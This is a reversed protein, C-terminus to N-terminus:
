RRKVAGWATITKGHPIVTKIAARYIGEVTAAYLHSQHSVLARVTLGGLGAPVFTESREDFMYVGHRYLGAFLRGRYVALSMISATAGNSYVPLTDFFYEWAPKAENRRALGHLAGVYLRDKLEAWDGVDGYGSHHFEWTQGSDPSRLIGFNEDDVWLYGDFETMSRVSGAILCCGHIWEDLVSRWTEGRDTSIYTGDFSMMAVITGDGTIFMQDISPYEDQVKEGNVTRRHFGNNIPKWTNGRDDSRFVGHFATGAYVFNQTITIATVSFRRLDQGLETYRWTYGNDESIYLGSEEKIGASAYLRFGDTELVRVHGRTEAVALPLWLTRIEADSQDALMTMMVLFIFAARELGRTWVM